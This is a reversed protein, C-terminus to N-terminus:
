KSSHLRSKATQISAYTQEGYDSVTRLQAWSCERDAAIPTATTGRRTPGLVRRPDACVRRRWGSIRLYLILATRGDHPGVYQQLRVAASSSNSKDLVPM